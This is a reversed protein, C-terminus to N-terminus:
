ATPNDDREREASLDATCRSPPLPTTSIFTAGDTVM